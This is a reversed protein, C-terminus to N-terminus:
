GMTRKKKESIPLQLQIPEEKRKPLFRSIRLKLPTCEDLMDLVPPHDLRSAVWRTLWFEAIKQTAVKPQRTNKIIPKPKADLELLYRTLNSVLPVSYVIRSHAHRLLDADNLGLAALGQSIRRMKPNAGEGFVNNVRRHEDDAESIFSLYTQTERSLHVSGYGETEGIRNFSLDSQQDPLTGVPLRVRNYQSSGVSYLSTTGLHVLEPKRSIVRGAMQSAIISPQDKYRRSYEDVVEPSVMLLSALKGSLLYSYPPVGGCVVIEMLSSGSLRNRIQRLAVGIAMRGEETSILTDLMSQPKKTSEQVSQIVIRARLLDALAKSRKRQFLATKAAERLQTHSMDAIDDIRLPAQGSRLQSERRESAEFHFNSLKSVAYLTPKKIQSPSIPLDSSYIESISKEISDSLVSIAERATIQKQEVLKFFSSPTWGFLNDRCTLQMVTNGLAAIAIVPHYKQAADRILFFVNRGPSSFYPISWNFRFYRWIDSLKIGTISCRTEPGVVQLYPKIVSKLHEAREEKPLQAIKSLQAKLIRGDAILNTIPVCQSGRGPIELAHIFRRVSPERLQDDRAFLGTRRILEKQAKGELEANTPSPPYLVIRGDRIESSWGQSLLDRLLLSSAALELRARSLSNTKKGFNTIQDFLDQLAEAPEASELAATLQSSLHEHKLFNPCFVRGDTKEAEESKPLVSNSM